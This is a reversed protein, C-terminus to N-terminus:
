SIRRIEFGVMGRSLEYALRKVLSRIGDDSGTTITVASGSQRIRYFDAPMRCEDVYVQHYDDPSRDSRSNKFVAVNVWEGHKFNSGVPLTSHGEWFDHDERSHRYFQEIGATM